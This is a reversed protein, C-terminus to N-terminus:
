IPIMPKLTLFVSNLFDSLKCWIDDIQKKLIHSTLTVLATAKIELSFLFLDLFM